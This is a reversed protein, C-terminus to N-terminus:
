IAVEAQASFVAPRAIHTVGTPYEKLILNGYAARSISGPNPGVTVQLEFVQDASLLLDTNQTGTTLNDGSTKQFQITYDGAGGSTLWTRNFINGGNTLISLQGNSRFIATASAGAVTVGDYARFDNGNITLFDDLDYRPERSILSATGGPLNIGWRFNSANVTSNTGTFQTAVNRAWNNGWSRQTTTSVGLESNINQASVQSPTPM